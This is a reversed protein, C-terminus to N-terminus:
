QNVWASEYYLGPDRKSLHRCGTETAIYFKRCWSKRTDYKMSLLELNPQASRPVHAGILWQFCVDRISIKNKTNALKNICGSIDFPRMNATPYGRSIPRHTVM